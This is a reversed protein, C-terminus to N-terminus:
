REANSGVLALRFLGQTRLGVRVRSVGVSIDLWLGICVALHVSVLRVQATLPDPSLQTGAPLHRARDGSPDRVTGGGPVFAPRQLPTRGAMATTASHASRLGGQVSRDRCQQMLQAAQSRYLQHSAPSPPRTHHQPSYPIKSLIDQSFSLCSCCRRECAHGTQNIM